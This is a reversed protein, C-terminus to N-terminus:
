NKLFDYYKVDPYTLDNVHYRVSSCDAVSWVPEIYYSFYTEIWYYTHADMLNQIQYCDIRGSADPIGTTALFMQRPKETYLLQCRINLYDGTRWVSKLKVDEMKLEDIKEQPLVSITDTNVKSLGKVTVALCNGGLDDDVVYNLLLRQGVPMGPYKVNSANLTILPSDNYSRFTFVSGNEGEGSYTVLEYSFDGYAFSEDEDSCAAFIVASIIVLIYKMIIM